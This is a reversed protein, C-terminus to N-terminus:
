KRNGIDDPIDAPIDLHSSPIQGSKPPQKDLEIRDMPRNRSQKESPPQGDGKKRTQGKRQQSGAKKEEPKRNEHEQRKDPRSAKPGSKRTNAQKRERNPGSSTRQVGSSRKRGGQRPKRNQNDPSSKQSSRKKYQSSAKKQRNSRLFLSSVRAILNQVFSNSASNRPRPLPMHEIQDTHVRAQEAPKSPPKNLMRDPPHYDAQVDQQYSFLRSIRDLEDSKFREVLPNDLTKSPIITVSRGLRSELELIEHRKENFLYTFM